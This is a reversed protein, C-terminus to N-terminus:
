ASNGRHCHTVRTSDGKLGYAHEPEQLRLQVLQKSDAADLVKQRTAANGLIVIATTQLDNAATLPSLHRLALILSM